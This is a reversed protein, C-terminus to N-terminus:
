PIFFETKPKYLTKDHYITKGFFAYIPAHPGVEEQLMHSNEECVNNVRQESALFCMKSRHMPRSVWHRWVYLLFPKTLRCMNPQKRARGLIARYGTVILHEPLLALALTLRIIKRVQPTRRITTIMGLTAAEQIYAQSHFLQLSIQSCM